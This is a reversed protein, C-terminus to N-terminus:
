RKEAQSTPAGTAAAEQALAGGAKGEEGADTCFRLMPQSVFLSNLQGAYCAAPSTSDLPLHLASPVTQLAVASCSM